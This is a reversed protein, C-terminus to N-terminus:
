LSRVPDGGPRAERRERRASRPGDERSSLWLALSVARWLALGELHDTEGRLFRGHLELVHETDLYRRIIPSPNKLVAEIRGDDISRYASAWGPHLNAKGARWQIAPPLIGEMAHRMAFRTWGRRIKQNPPFSLCLEALRVDCFPLRVEVGRGAACAELWGIGEFLALGNLKRLHFERETTPPNPDAVISDSFRRAFDSNITSDLSTAPRGPRTKGEQRGRIRRILPEAYTGPSPHRLGLRLLSRYDSVVPRDQRRSYPIATLALKLWRGTMALESLYGTGHSVTTDGDFGDLVVRAGAGAALGYLVWNLYLNAGWNAGGVFRNMHDIEAIPNVTNAVFFHPVMRHGDLVEQIFSREDSDPMGPYVASLVHLSSGPEVNQLLDAAVCAISASDIGGSLMCAVPTASRLRCRVAEVFTERLAEAYEGDDSLHLERTPDLQWYRRTELNRDTVTLVHAPMLRRVHKYYTTSVDGGLPIRLHRAVEFDDVEDSVDGLALLAEVESAFAFLRGPSHHYYFPKVGFPDRACFLRHKRSDWIALAFDGMWHEICREGWARYSALLLEADTIEEPAPDRLDLAAILEARNDIRVDATLVLDGVATALPQIEREAQRTTRFMRHGLTVPGASWLGAGDPGRHALVRSMEECAAADPPRGDVRWLGFIGSM